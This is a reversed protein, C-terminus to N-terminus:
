ASARVDTFPAAQQDVTLDAEPVLAQLLQRAARDESSAIVARIDELIRPAAGVDIVKSGVAVVGPFGTEIRTESDSLLEEYLKEGPRLGVFELEIDDGPRLGSLVIMRKALDVIKVPDGMDLIHVFGREDTNKAAMASAHLVLHCAESVTMFYRVIDPHTITIPGGSRIQREFRPVVSGSSGLVNGFRVTICRMGGQQDLMQCYREALRKTAGMVNTPNVAKDTSILVLAKAGADRAAHAVHCTGLVNTNLGEIPQAEVLPVHKLAAAHFVYDPRFEEFIARVRPESRVNGLRAVVETTTACDELEQGIRYLNFESHDVLVIRGPHMKLIQRCLESGISGGAGTVLVTQGSLLRRAASTDLSKYPRSLLDEIKLPYPEFAKPNATHIKSLDPLRLLRIDRAGAWQIVADLASSQFRNNERTLIVSDVPQERREAADALADLEAITDVVPVGRIRLGARRHRDDFVALARYNLNPQDSLSKIFAEANATAGFLVAATPKAAGERRVRLNRWLRYALRTASLGIVVFAGAVVVAQWVMDPIGAVARSVLLLGVSAIATNGIALLEPISSYRWLGRNLGFAVSVGGILFMFVTADGLANVAAGNASAILHAAALYAAFGILCDHIVVLIRIVLVRHSQMVEISRPLLDDAGGRWKRWSARLSQQLAGAQSDPSDSPDSM